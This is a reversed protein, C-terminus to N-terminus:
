ILGNYQDYPRVPHPNDFPNSGQQPMMMMMMQQQQHHNAMQVNHPPAMMASGYFPDPGTQPAMMSGPMPGHQEWPNYATTQNSRREADEYLSDLTLKDLGGGLKSSATATENSSPATVLALEWGASGNMAAEHSIPVIALARANKQDLESVQKHTDDMGLLDPPPEAHPAEVKVPEPEPEPHPEAPPPSPPPKAPAEVEKKHQIALVEKPKRDFSSARPAEKVYEEMAQTFSSPPQEIKIFGEGRGMDLSKCIEYFESLREAQQGTRRYIDLAKLADHRQMEFFKDVLNLSGENIAKYVKMSESAVMSLALRIVFNDVAAGQPQCGLVRYLLQQLAPLQELLEPTDLDRTRLRETEVDYKLVRFCELREELFLAYTRVWASYDWANPSSDDKFHSLNLLHNSTRGYNLLEEQFTPDVERLARHIIILTKLAVAWNHTKSLRRALAHICYAVDARPRTASIAAFIARMHKEKAPHEVHNTAKVINVDLEKYDSNVKALNVTTSDKIAGLAKRLSTQSGGGSMQKGVRFTKLMHKQDFYKKQIKFFVRLRDRTEMVKDARRRYLKENPTIDITAHYTKNYVFEVLALHTHPSPPHGSVATGPKVGIVCNGSYDTGIKSLWETHNEGKPLYNYVQIDNDTNNGWYEFLRKRVDGHVGGAFFALITRNYPSHGSSIMPINDYPAKSETMAVDRSPIFGESTNANCLVRIFNEFLQPNGKSVIPGWDHCSVYFHDAGKSRNWYPYREAIVKIYDELIAQMRERINYAEDPTYLYHVMNTVSIPIFFAHAEDPNNAVIPNGKREMEEIFDGEICYVLKMPGYHMLPLDGEKYTWIKFTKMMETHSQFFAFPNKYVPGKPFFSGDKRSSAHSKEVIAQRINRRAETLQQEVRALKIDNDYLVFLLLSLTTLTIIVKTSAAM